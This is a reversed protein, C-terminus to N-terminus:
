NATYDGRLEPIPLRTDATTRHLRQPHSRGQHRRHASRASASPATPGDSVCCVKALPRSHRRIERGRRRGVAACSSSSVGGGAAQRHRRTSTRAYLCNIPEAVLQATGPFPPFRFTGDHATQAPSYAATDHHHWPRPGPAFPHHRTGLSGAPVDAITEPSTSTARIAEDRSLCDARPCRLRVTEFGVNQRAPVMPFHGSPVPYPEKM